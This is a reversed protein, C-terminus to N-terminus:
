SCKFCGSVSDGPKTAHWCIYSNCKMYTKALITLGWWLSRQMITRRWHKTMAQCKKLLLWGRWTRWLRVFWMASLLNWDDNEGKLSVNILCWTQEGRTALRLCRYARSGGSARTAPEKGSCRCTIRAWIELVPNHSYSQAFNRKFFIEYMDSIFAIVIDM